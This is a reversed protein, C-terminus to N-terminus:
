PRGLANQILFSEAAPIQEFSISDNRGETVLQDDVFLQFASPLRVGEFVQFDSYVIRTPSKGAAFWTMGESGVLDRSEADFHLLRSYGSWHNIRLSEVDRDQFRGTGAHELTLNPDKLGALWFVTEDIARNRLVRAEEVTLRSVARGALQYAHRGDFVQEVQQETGPFWFRWRLQNPERYSIVSRYPVGRYTGSEQRIAGGASEFLSLGGRQELAAEFLEQEPPTACGALAALALLVFLGATRCGARHGVRNM